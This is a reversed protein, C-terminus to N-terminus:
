KSVLLKSRRYGPPDLFINKLITILFSLIYLDLLYKLTLFFSVFINLIIIEKQQCLSFFFFIVLLLYLPFSFHQSSLLLTLSNSILSLSLSLNYKSCSCVSVKLLSVNNRNCLWLSCLQQCSWLFSLVMINRKM